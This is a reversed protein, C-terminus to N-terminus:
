SFTMFLFMLPCVAKLLALQLFGFVHALRSAFCHLLVGFVSQLLLSSHSSLLM